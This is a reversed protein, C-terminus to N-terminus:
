IHILSLVEVAQRVVLERQFAVGRLTVQLTDVQPHAVVEGLVQCQAGAVVDALVVVEGLLTDIDSDAEVELGCFRPPPPNVDATRECIHVGGTQRAKLEHCCLRPQSQLWVDPSQILSQRQGQHFESIPSKDGGRARLAQSLASNGSGPGVQRAM